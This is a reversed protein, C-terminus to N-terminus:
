AVMIHVFVPIVLTLSSQLNGQGKKRLSFLHALLTTGPFILTSSLHWNLYDFHPAGMRFCCLHFVVRFTFCFFYEKKVSLSGYRLLM